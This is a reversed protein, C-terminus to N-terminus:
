STENAYDVNLMHVTTTDEIAPGAAGGSPSMWLNIHVSDINELAAQDAVVTQSLGGNPIAVATGTIPDVGVPYYSFIAGHTSNVDTAVVALPSWTGTYTWAGGAGSAAPMTAELLCSTPGVPCQATSNSLELEIEEPGIDTMVDNLNAYFEVETGSAFAIASAPTGEAVGTEIQRTITDLTVQEQSAVGVRQDSNVSDGVLNTTASIVSTMLVTLLLFAIMLEMLTMGREDRELRSRRLRRVLRAKM